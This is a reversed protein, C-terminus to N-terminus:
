VVNKRSNVETVEHWTGTVLKQLKQSVGHVSAHVCLFIFVFKNAYCCFRFAVFNLKLMRKILHAGMKYLSFKEKLEKNVQAYGKKLKKPGHHPSTQM